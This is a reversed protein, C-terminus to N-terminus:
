VGLLRWLAPDRLTPVVLEPRSAVVADRHQSGALVGVARAGAAHAATVDRETDGVVVVEEASFARGFRAQAAAQGRDIGARVLAERASADSGFGGLEFHEALGGPELKMLAAREINGTALGLVHRGTGALAEVLERAGPLVEYEHASAALEEGLHDVYRALVAEREEDGRIPRGVHQAYADELIVPDTSGNLRVGDLAGAVGTVAEIARALARRGAGRVSVLTGDIDFLVLM